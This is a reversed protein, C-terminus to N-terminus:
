AEETTTRETATGEEVGQLRDNILDIYTANLEIGVFPLGINKAAL